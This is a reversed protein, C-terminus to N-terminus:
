FGIHAYQEMIEARLRNRGQIAREDLNSHESYTFAASLIHAALDPQNNEQLSAPQPENQALPPQTCSEGTMGPSDSEQQAVAFQNDGDDGATVKESHKPKRSEGSENRAIVHRPMAPSEAHPQLAPSTTTGGAACSPEPQHAAPLLSPKESTAIASEVAVASEEQLWAMRGLLCCLCFMAAVGAVKLWLPRYRSPTVPDVSQTDSPLAPQNPSHRACDSDDLVGAEIGAFLVAYASWREPVSPTSTFFVALWREEELTTEAKMFRSLMEDIHAEDYKM